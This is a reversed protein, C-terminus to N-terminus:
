ALPPARRHLCKRHMRPGRLLRHPRLTCAVSNTNKLYLRDPYLQIAVNHNSQSASMYIEGAAVKTYSADQIVSQVVASDLPEVYLANTNM